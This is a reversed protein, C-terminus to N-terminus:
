LRPAHNCADQAGQTSEYLTAPRRTFSVDLAPRRDRPALENGFLRSERLGRDGEHGAPSLQEIALDEDDHELMGAASSGASGHPDGLRASPHARGPGARRRAPRARERHTARHRRAGPVAGYLELWGNSRAAGGRGPGARRRGGLTQRGCPEVRKSARGAQAARTRERRACECLAIVSSTLSRSCGSPMTM